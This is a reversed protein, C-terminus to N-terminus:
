NSVHQTLGSFCAGYHRVQLIALWPADAVAQFLNKTPEYGLGPLVSFEQWIAGVVALM